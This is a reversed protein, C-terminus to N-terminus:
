DNKNGIFKMFEDFPLPKSFYYGQIIDCNAEQKLFDLQEKTEVGEAVVKMELVHGLAAIALLVAENGDDKGIDDVFSKDIKLAYVPFRKLYGLSSFGTGFDDISFQLGLNSLHNLKRIINETNEMLLNETFEFELHEISANEENLLDEIATCFGSTKFHGPSINIAIHFDPHTVRIKESFNIVTRLLWFTLDPILGFSEAVPIFEAPSVFGLKKNNWRMLAEADNTKFSQSSVTVKPQLYIELENNKIADRLETEIEKKRLMESNLKDVFFRFQGRGESKAKYMALDAQKLLETPDKSDEPYLAIGISSNIHIDNDKIYYPEKLSDIINSAGASAGEYRTVNELIVAFEDGGLRCVIDNDRTAHNLRDAVEKLLEDGVDHGMTDNVEKFHDLDLLLIATSSDNHRNSSVLNAIEKNFLERNPLKTLTDHEALWRIQEESAKRESIDIFSRVVGMPENNANFSPASHLIYHTNNITLEDIHSHQEEIIYRDIEEVKKM